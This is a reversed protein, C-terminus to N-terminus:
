NKKKQEQYPYYDLLDNMERIIIKYLITTGLELQEYENKKIIHYILIYGTRYKFM